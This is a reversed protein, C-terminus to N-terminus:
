KYINYIKQSIIQAVTLLPDITPSYPPAYPLDLHLLDHVRFDSMICVVVTGM